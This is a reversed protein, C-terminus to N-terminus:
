CVGKKKNQPIKERFKLGSSLITKQLIPWYFTSHVAHFLLSFDKTLSIDSFEMVPVQVFSVNSSSFKFSGCSCVFSDRFSWVMPWLISMALIYSSFHLFFRFLRHRRQEDRDMISLLFSVQSIPARWILWKLCRLNLWIKYLGNKFGNM